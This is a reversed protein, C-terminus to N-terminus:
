RTSWKEFKGELAVSAKVSFQVSSEEPSIMFAPGQPRALSPLAVSVALCLVALRM